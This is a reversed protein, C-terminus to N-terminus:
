QQYFRQMSINKAIDISYGSEGHPFMVVYHTPDYSANLENISTFKGDENNLQISRYADFAMSDNPIFGAIEDVTPTSFQNKKINKTTHEFKLEITPINPENLLYNRAHRQIARAWPNHMQLYNLLEEARAPNLGRYEDQSLTSRANDIVYLQVFRPVNDRKAIAPPISHYTSGQMRIHFPFMNNVQFGSNGLTSGLTSIQLTCNYRRINRRFEDNSLYTRLFEPLEEIFEHNGYGDVCCKSITTENCHVM